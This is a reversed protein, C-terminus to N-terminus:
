QRLNMDSMTFLLDDDDEKKRKKLYFDEGGEDDDDFVNEYHIKDYASPTTSLGVVEKSDPRHMAHTMTTSVVPNATRNSKLFSANSHISNHFSSRRSLDDDSPAEHLRTQISPLHKDISNPPSVVLSKRSLPRSGQQHLVLSASVSDSLQQHDKRMLQFKSLADLQSFSNQRSSSLLKSETNFRLDLKSDIMRVFDSIDDEVHWASPAALSVSTGLIDHRVSTNSFRRSARSGFSSSFRPTNSVSDPNSSPTDDHLYGHSSSVSRPMLAIPMTNTTSSTSLRPNRLMAALLANSTLKNSTISVKRELSGSGVPPSNSILGIKFPQISPRKAPKPTAEHKLLCPSVSTSGSMPQKDAESLFHSSLLEENDSVSFKHHNRYAISIKLTGLSTNIPVFHKQTLHDAHPIIAKSLGIRGKSSIPKKGDLIKNGLVLPGSSLSKRLRFAPMLRTFGYLSRFLVIAQKYVFPLEDAIAGSVENRDFEILWRELVVEQKKGGGKAVPWPHDNEDYLIVTEDSSVDRLDLYTEIIMPPPNESKWLKLDDRSSDNAGLVLNFWKNLKDLEGTLRSQLVIHVLKSFFNQVVQPLKNKKDVM